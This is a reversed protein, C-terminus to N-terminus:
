GGWVGGEGDWGGVQAVDPQPKGLRNSMASFANCAAAVRSPAPPVQGPPFEGSRLREPSVYESGGIGCLYVEGSSRPYVESFSLFLESCWLTFADFCFFLLLIFLPRWGGENVGTHSFRGRFTCIVAAFSAM